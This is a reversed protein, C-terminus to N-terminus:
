MNILMLLTVGRDGRGWALSVRSGWGKRKLFISRERLRFSSAKNTGELPPESSISRGAAQAQWTMRTNQYSWFAKKKKKKGQACAELTSPTAHTASSVKPSCLENVCLTLVFSTSVPSFVLTGFFGTSWAAMTFAGNQGQDEKWVFREKLSTALSM